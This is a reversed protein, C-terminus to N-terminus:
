LRTHTHLYWWIQCWFKSHFSWQSLTTFIDIQDNLNIRSCTLLLIKRHTHTCVLDTKLLIM